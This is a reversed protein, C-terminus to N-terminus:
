RFPNLGLQHFQLLFKQFQRIRFLIIVTNRILNVPQPFQLLIGQHLAGFPFSQFLPDSLHPLEQFPLGCLNHLVILLQHPPQDLLNGNIIFPKLHLEFGPRLHIHLSILSINSSLPTILM